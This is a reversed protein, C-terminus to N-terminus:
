YNPQLEMFLPVSLLASGLRRPPIALKLKLRVLRTAQTRRSMTPMIRPLSALDRLWLSAQVRDSSLPEILFQLIKDFNRDIIELLKIESDPAEGVRKGSLNMAISNFKMLLDDHTAHVEANPRGVRTEVEELIGQEHHRLNKRLWSEITPDSIMRHLIKPLGTEVIEPLLGAIQETPYGGRIMVCAVLVQLPRSSPLGSLYPAQTSIEPLINVSTARLRSWGILRNRFTEFIRPISKEIDTCIKCFRCRARHLLPIDPPNPKIM